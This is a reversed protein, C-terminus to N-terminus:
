WSEVEVMDVLFLFEEESSSAVNAAAAKGIGGQGHDESPPLSCDM